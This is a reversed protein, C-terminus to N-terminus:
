CWAKTRWCAILCIKLTWTASSTTSIKTVSWSNPQRKYVDLHTYSVPMPTASCLPMWAPCRASTTCRIKRWRTTLIPLYDRIHSSWWWMQSIHILSLAHATWIYSAAPYASTSPRYPTRRRRAPATSAPLRCARLHTYSVSKM